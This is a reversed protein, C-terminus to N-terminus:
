AWLASIPVAWIADGLPLVHPGAYMVLGRRFRGPYRARFAEIGSTADTPVERARKVEIATYTHDSEVVLDVEDRRRDRWHYLGDNGGEWELQSAIENVVFSELLAGRRDDSVGAPDRAVLVPDAMHLKPVARETDTAKSRLGPLRRILRMEELLDLYRSATRRDIALDVVLRSIVLEHGAIGAIGDLLRTLRSHDIAHDSESLTEPVVSRLYDRRWRGRDARTTVLLPFGTAAAERDYDAGMLDIVALSAPNGDLLARISSDPRGHREAATLPGLEFRAMRGALPHSGGMTPLDVRTSGTLLFHGPMGAADVASKVPVLVEPVLQAEDIVTGFPLSDVFLQPSAAAASRVGPDAFSVYRRYVGEKVLRAALTTKGCSRPGVLVTVPLGDTASRRLAPLLGRDIWNASM